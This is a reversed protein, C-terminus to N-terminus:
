WREIPTIVSCASALIILRSYFPSEAAYCVLCVLDKRLPMLQTQLCACGFLFIRFRIGFAVPYHSRQKRRNINSSRRRVSIRIDSTAGVLYFRLRRRRKSGDRRRGFVEFDMPSNNVNLYRYRRAKLAGLRLCRPLFTPLFM